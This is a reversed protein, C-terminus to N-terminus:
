FGRVIVSQPPWCSRRLLLFCMGFFSALLYPRFDLPMVALCYNLVNYPVLPSLRLLLVVKFQNKRIVESFASLQPYRGILHEDVWSKLLFRSNLFALCSGLTAGVLVACFGWPLGLIFGAVITLLLAPVLLVGAICYIGALGFAGEVRHEESWRFTSPV